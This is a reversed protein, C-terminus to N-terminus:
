KLYNQFRLADEVAAPDNWELLIELTDRQINDQFRLANDVADPNNWRLLMQLALVQDSNQFRLANEFEDPDERELLMQLAYEQPDTLSLGLFDLIPTYGLSLMYVLAQLFEKM